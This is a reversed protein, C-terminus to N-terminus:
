GDNEYLLVWSGHGEDAKRPTRDYYIEFIRGSQVRVQFYFRGTGWSGMKEARILHAPRMNKSKLGKRSLDCWQKIVKEITYQNGRWYFYDPCPPVKQLLPENYFGVSIEEDIFSKNQRPLSDMKSM